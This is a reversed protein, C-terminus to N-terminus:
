PYNGLPVLHETIAKIIAKERTPVNLAKRIRKEHSYIASIPKDLADAIEQSSLGYVMLCLVPYQDPTLDYPKQHTSPNNFLAEIKKSFTQEGNRTRRLAIPLMKSQGDEKLLYGHIGLDVAKFAIYPDIKASVLLVRPPAPTSFLYTLFTLVDFNPMMIDLLLIDPKTTELLNPLALADQTSGVLQFDPLSELIERIALEVLDHDDALLVRTVAAM